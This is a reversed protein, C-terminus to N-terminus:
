VDTEKGLVRKIAARAAEVAAWISAARDGFDAADMSEIGDFDEFPEAIREAVDLLDPAVAILRANAQDNCCLTEAIVIQDTRVWWTPRERREARWPGPTHASV